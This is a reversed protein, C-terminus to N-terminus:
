VLRHCKVRAISPSLLGSMSVFQPIRELVSNLCAALESSCLISPCPFPKSLTVRLDDTHSAVLVHLSVLLDIAELQGKLLVLAVSPPNDRAFDAITEGCNSAFVFCVLYVLKCQRRHGARLCRCVRVAM